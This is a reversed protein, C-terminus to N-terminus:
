QQALGAGYEVRDRCGRAPRLTGSSGPRLQHQHGLSPRGVLQQLSEEGRERGVWGHRRDLDHQTLDTLLGTQEAVPACVHSQHVSWDVVEGTEGGLVEADLALDGDERCVM